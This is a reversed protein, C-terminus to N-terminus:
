GEDKSRYQVGSNHNTIKFSAHLEFDRVTGNKWILFTNKPIPHDATTQGVIAGDRVSWCNPDGDWGDLDKGNFLEVFEGAPSDAATARNVLQAAPVGVLAAAAFLLVLPLKKRPIMHM